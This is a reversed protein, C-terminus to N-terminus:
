NPANTRKSFYAALTVAAFVLLFGMAPIMYRVISLVATTMAWFYAVLALLFGMAFRSGPFRRWALYLGPIALLVYVSQVIAIPREHLMSETAYWSRVLKLFSLELVAGPNSVMQSAMFKVIDGTTILSPREQQVRDILGAARAPIWEHSMGNYKVPYTLGNVMSPPGGTSLLIWHGLYSRLELEWPLIAIAFAIVIFGAGALRRRMPLTAKLLLVIAFLLPLFLAIPRILAAVAALLGVLAFWAYGRKVFRLFLWVSLYLVCVFPVESNPQKLLWLNFPYTAWLLASVVGIRQTFVLTGIWYVFLCSFASVSINGATILFDRSIGLRDALLFQIALYAPFGPPYRSPLRGNMTLGKGLAINQAMPQYFSFYDSAENARYSEPLAAVFALQILAALFWIWLSRVPINTKSLELDM